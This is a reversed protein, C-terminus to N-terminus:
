DPSLFSNLHQRAIDFERRLRDLVQEAGQLEADRGRRELEMCHKRMRQAGLNEISSLFRHSASVLAEANAAALADAINQLHRPSDNIFLQVIDSALTPNSEDQLEILQDIRRRDIIPAEEEVEVTASRGVVSMLVARLDELEVPKSVYADMGAALCKERDGPMANATMAIVRPVGDSFRARLRRTAELGDMEPMQVDMLVVDYNQRELADLVEIGNAVVDARYGLHALLQQVVKQNVTNDEAVLIKLPLTDALKGTLTRQRSAAVQQPEIKMAHLLADFLATPKIPKNLYAAFKVSSMKDDRPRNSVSTLMILPLSHEDRYKRIELALGLGDMEPMSMDLIGVDFAHGHRVFDLAEIASAAASPVMGWLLAQKVLIRRNTSNDDVILVRRGAMASSRDQLFSHALQSGSPEAVITFYFTSGSGVKSEVWMRGGMVEALRKSIALGLGTGGYKRTTSADVQTFVQFLETLRAEPIGIGTDRVSFQVEHRKDELQRASVTVVVEGHHTFKIANSLLNVLIQRLRTVDGVLSAPVSDDIFYAINLNKEAASPSLLDLSEEICRRLDFPQREIDLKGVEIKSYDLIDNIITLLVESSARITEAYDRQEEDIRTNLLLSTMGIVANLPTRIEHSMNALFMSKAQMAAEAKEKALELEREYAKRASIDRLIVTYIVDGEVELRSISAEAPFETGDKRIAFIAQREAMKRAMRGSKDFSEIHKGHGAHYRQPLLRNLEQGLVEETKWGFVREAGQNFLIIRQGSDVCIIADDAISLIGTLQASTLSSSPM